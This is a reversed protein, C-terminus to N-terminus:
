FKIDVSRTKLESGDHGIFTASLTGPKNLKVKFEIEPNQPSSLGMDFTYLVEKDFRVIIEKLYQMAIPQKSLEDVGDERHMPYVILAKADIIDGQKYEKQLLGLLARIRKKRAM